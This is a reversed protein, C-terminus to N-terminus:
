VENLAWHLGVDVFFTLMDDPFGLMPHDVLPAVFLVGTTVQRQSKDWKLWTINNIHTLQLYLKSIYYIYLITEHFQPCRGFFDGFLDWAFGQGMNCKYWCVLPSQLHGLDWAWPRWPQWERHPGLWKGQLRASRMQCTAVHLQKQAKKPQAMSHRKNWM